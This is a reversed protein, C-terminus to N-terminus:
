EVRLCLGLREFPRARKEFADLYERSSLREVGRYEGAM